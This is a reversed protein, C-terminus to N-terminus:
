ATRETFELRRARSDGAADVVSALVAVLERQQLAHRGRQQRGAAVQERRADGGVDADVAPELEDLAVTAPAVWAVVM